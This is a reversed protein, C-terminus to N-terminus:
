ATVEAMGPRAPADDRCVGFMRACPWCLTTLCRLCLSWDQCTVGCGRCRVLVPDHPRVTNTM